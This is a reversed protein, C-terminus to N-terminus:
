SGRSNRLQVPVQNRLQINNHQFNSTTLHRTVSSYVDHQQRPDRITIALCFEQSLEEGDAVAAMEAAQAFLGELKLFWKKPATLGAKRKSNRLEELNVAYKKVPHYKGEYDRLQRERTFPSDNHKRYAAGYASSLLFNEPNVKQLPNKPNKKKTVTPQVYDYTGFSVTLDSQCYEPGQSGDLRTASVLTIIVEGYYQANDIMEEPFPFDWMEIYGGRVLKDRLILTIGHASNYIIQEVSQPRGYGLEKLRTIPNLTLNAPYSASHVVLTKLLLPDFKEALRQNLGGLLATVRPTSFSTGAMQVIGGGISFTNVGTYSLKGDAQRGSNGGYHALDPKILNNPAFGVRSFPSPFDVEVEYPNSRVHAMSAVVLSRVSDAARAIRAKPLAREFNHCNGASKCIVVKFRDQLEDLAKGFDSFDQEDCTGTGGGSLNWIKVDPFESIAEEIRIILDSESVPLDRRPFVTADLLKYGSGGVWAKRELEDGYEVIGAVHTGHARDIDEEPVACYGRPDLWDRLHDIPEIGSDLIGIVPYDQGSIPVKVPIAPGSGMEDLGVSYMPVPSISLLAEFEQIAALADLRAERVEFVNLTATYRVKHYSVDLQRLVEEFTAEVRQNLQRNQYNILKVKLPTAAPDTPLEISPKFAVVESIASLGVQFALPEAMKQTILGLHQADDVRVLLESQQISGIFNYDTKTRNFLEGVATRSAKALAYSHLEVKVVAPIYSKDPPRVALSRATETLVQQFVAGKAQLEVATQVWQPLEKSGGGPTARQDYDGRKYFLKIPLNQDPM